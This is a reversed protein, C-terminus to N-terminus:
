VPQDHEPRLAVIQAHTEGAPTRYTIEDGEQRGVLAQGLPSYPTLTGTTESEDTDEVLAVVRLEEVTGDAFRLTVETGAQLGEPDEQYGHTLLEDVARLREEVWRLEDAQLLANASDGSDGVGEDGIGGALERRQDVLAAREQELRKRATPTLPSSGTDTQGSMQM